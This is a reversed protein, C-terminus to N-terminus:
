INYLASQIQASVIYLLSFTNTLNIFKSSKASVIMKEPCKLFLITNSWHLIIFIQLDVPIFSLNIFVATDHKFYHLPYRVTERIFKETKGYVLEWALIYCILSAKDVSISVSLASKRFYLMPPFNIFAVPITRLISSRPLITTGLSIRLVSRM